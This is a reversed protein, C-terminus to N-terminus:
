GTGGVVGGFGEDPADRAEEVAPAEEAAAPAAAAPAAEAAEGEEPAPIEDVPEAAPEAEEAEEAAPTPTPAKAAVVVVEEMEEVPEDEATTSLAEVRPTAEDFSEERQPAGAAKVSRDHEGRELKTLREGHEAFRNVRLCDDWGSWCIM